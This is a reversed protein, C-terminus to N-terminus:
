PKSEFSVVTVSYGKRTFPTVSLSVPPEPADALGFFIGSRSDFVHNGRRPWGRILEVLDFPKTSLSKPDPVAEETDETGKEPLPQPATMAEGLNLETIATPYGFVTFRGIVKSLPKQKATTLNIDGGSAVGDFFYVTDKDVYLAHTFNKGTGNHLQNPATFRVTGPERETGYFELDRFSWQLMSLTISVPSGTRVDWHNASQDASRGGFPGDMTPQDTRNRDGGFVADGTFALDLTQRHPASIREGREVAAVPSNEDMWYFAVDEALFERPRNTATSFYMAFAFVLSLFPLTVWGWERRDIWRLIVFNGMGAILIYAALWCLLWTLTPFKFHIAVRNRVWDMEGNRFNFANWTAIIHALSAGGYLEGLEKSPLSKIWFVKGQGVASANTPPASTRYPALFEPDAAQDEIVVLTGRHRVYEELATRQIQSMQSLPAALVITQIPEYSWWVEPVRKLTVFRMQAAKQAQEPPTGSFSIQTQAEQCVAPEACLLAILGPQYHLNLPVSDKAIINGQVDTVDVEVDGAPVRGTFVVPIDVVRQENGALSAMQTFTDLGAPRGPGPGHLQVRLEITAPQPDDHIVLVRVAMLNGPEYYGQLGVDLIKVGDSAFSPPALVSAGALLFLAALTRSRKM